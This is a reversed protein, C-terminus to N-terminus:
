LSLSWVEAKNSAYIGVFTEPTPQYGLELIGSGLDKAKEQVQFVIVHYLGKRLKAFSAIERFM